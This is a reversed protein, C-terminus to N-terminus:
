RSAVLPPVTPLRDFLAGDGSLGMATGVNKAMGESSPRRSALQMAEKGKEDEDQPEVFENVNDLKLEAAKTLLAATDQTREMEKILKLPNNEGVGEAQFAAPALISRAQVLNGERLLEIASRIRLNPDQPVLVTAHLLGEIADKPPRAGM